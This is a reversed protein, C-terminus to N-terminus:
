DIRPRKLLGQKVLEGHVEIAENIYEAASEYFTKLRSDNDTKMVIYRDAFLDPDTFLLAHDLDGFSDFTVGVIECNGDMEVKFTDAVDKKETDSFREYFDDTSLISARVIYQAVRRMFDMAIDTTNQQFLETVAAEVAQYYAYRMVQYQKDVVARFEPTDFVEAAKM